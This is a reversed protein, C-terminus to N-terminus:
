FPGMKPHKTPSETREPQSTPGISFSRAIYHESLL